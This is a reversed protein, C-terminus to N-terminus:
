VVPWFDNIYEFTAGPSIDSRQYEERIFRLGM